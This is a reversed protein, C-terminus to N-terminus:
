ARGPRRCAIFRGNTGRPKWSGIREAHIVQQRGSPMDKSTIYGIAGALGSVFDSDNQRVVTREQHLVRNSLVYQAEAHRGQLIKKLKGHVIADM